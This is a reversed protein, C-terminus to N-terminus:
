RSGTRTGAAIPQEQHRRDLAVATIARRLHTTKQRQRAPPLIPGSSRPFKHIDLPKISSRREVFPLFGSCVVGFGFAVIMVGLSEFLDVIRRPYGFDREVIALTEYIRCEQAVNTFVSRQTLASRIV